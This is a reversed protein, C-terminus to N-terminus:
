QRGPGWPPWGGPQRTHQPQVAAVPALRAPLVRDLRPGVAGPALLVADLHVPPPDAGGKLRQPVALGPVARGPREDVGVVAGLDLGVVVQGRGRWGLLVRHLGDDLLRRAVNDAGGM